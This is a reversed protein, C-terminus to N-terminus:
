AVPLRWNVVPTAVVRQIRGFSIPDKRFGVGATILSRVAANGQHLWTPGTRSFRMRPVTRLVQVHAGNGDGRPPEPPDPVRTATPLWSEIAVRDVVFSEVPRKLNEAWMQQFFRHIAAAAPGTVRVALDHWALSTRDMVPDIGGTYARTSTADGAVVLKCHVAGLPHATLNVMVKGAGATGFRSRMEAVSLLTHANVLRISALQPLAYRSAFPSVWALIRVDAGSQHLDELRRSLLKGSPLTLPPFDKGVKVPGALGKLAPIQEVITTGFEGFARIETDSPLNALGLWWATLYLYRGKATSSSLADIEAELAKFYAVGNIFHDVTNGSLDSLFNQQPAYEGDGWDTRDTARALYKGILTQANSSPNM